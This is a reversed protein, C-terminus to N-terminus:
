LYAAFAMSGHILGILLILYGAKRHYVFPVKLVRAGVLVQLLVLTYLLLGLWVTLPRGWIVPIAM